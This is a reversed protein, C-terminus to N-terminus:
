QAFSVPSHILFLFCVKELLVMEKCMLHREFIYIYIYIPMLFYNKICEKSLPRHWFPALSGPGGISM